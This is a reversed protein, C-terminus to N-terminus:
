ETKNQNKGDGYEVEIILKKTGDEQVKEVLNNLRQTIQPVFIGCMGGTIQDDRIERKIRACIRKYDEYRNDTNEFYDTVDSIIDERDLYNQFGDFTLPKELERNVKVADKGVYDQRLKPSGKVEDRYAEFLEWMKEPTEIYKHYKGKRQGM